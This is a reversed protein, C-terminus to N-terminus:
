GQRVWLGLRTPDGALALRHPSLLTRM